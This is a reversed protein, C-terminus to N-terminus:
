PTPTALKSAGVVQLTLPDAVWAIVEIADLDVDAPVPISGRSGPAKTKVMARVVNTHVGESGRNEGLPITNRREPEVVAVYIQGGIPAGTATVEIKVVRGDITAKGDVKAQAPETLAHAIYGKVKPASSGIGQMTGNVVVQPTYLKKLRFADAYQKQRGTWRNDSYPDKWGLRDWYDVHYSVVYVPRDSSRAEADIGHLLADAPPCSSCGQSTFLEVLAIPEAALATLIWLM